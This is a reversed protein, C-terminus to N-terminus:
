RGSDGVISSKVLEDGRRGGRWRTSNVDANERRAQTM